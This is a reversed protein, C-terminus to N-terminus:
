IKSDGFFNLFQVGWHLPKRNRCTEFLEICNHKLQQNMVECNRHDYPYLTGTTNAETQLQSLPTYM